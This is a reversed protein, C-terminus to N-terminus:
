RGGFETRLNEACYKPSNEYNIIENEREPKSWVEADYSFTVNLYEEWMEKLKESRNCVM